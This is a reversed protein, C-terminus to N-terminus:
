KGFFLWYPVVFVSLVFLAFFWLVALDKLCWVFFKIYEEIDSTSM